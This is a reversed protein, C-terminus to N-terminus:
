FRKLYRFRVKPKNYCWRDNYKIYIYGICKMKVKCKVWYEDTYNVDFVQKVTPKCLKRRRVIDEINEPVHLYLKQPYGDFNIAFFAGSISGSFCVRKVTADENNNHGYYYLIKHPIRPKFWEGNHNETSLHFLRKPCKTIVKEIMVKDNEIKVVNEKM